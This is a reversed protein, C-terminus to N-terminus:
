DGNSQSSVVAFSAIPKITVDRAIGLLLKLTKSMIFIEVFPAYCQFARRDSYLKLEAM